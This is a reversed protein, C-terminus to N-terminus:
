GASPPPPGPPSSSRESSLPAAYQASMESLVQFIAHRATEKTDMDGPLIRQLRLLRILSAMALTLAHLLGAQDRVNNIQESLEKIHFIYVRLLDIQDAVGTPDINQPHRRSAPGFRPSYYGHKLANTNGPPAGRKKKPPIELSM